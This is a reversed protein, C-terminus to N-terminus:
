PTVGGDTLREQTKCKPHFITRDIGFRERQLLASVKVLYGHPTLLDSKLGDLEKFLRQERDDPVRSEGVFQGEPYGFQDVFIPKMVLHQAYNIVEEAILNEEEECPEISLIPYGLMILNVHLLEHVLGVEQRENAGLSIRFGIELPDSELGTIHCINPRGDDNRVISLRFDCFRWLCEALEEVQQKSSLIDKMLKLHHEQECTPTGM